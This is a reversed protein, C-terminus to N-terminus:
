YPLIEHFGFDVDRELGTNEIRLALRNLVSEAREAEGADVIDTLALENFQIQGFAVGGLRFGGDFLHALAQQGIGHDFVVLDVQFASRRNKLDTPVLM